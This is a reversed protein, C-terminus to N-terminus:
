ARPTVRRRFVEVLNKTALILKSLRQVHLVEAETPHPHSVTFDVMKKRRDQLSRQLRLVWAEAEIEQWSAIHGPSLRIVQPIIKQVNVKAM